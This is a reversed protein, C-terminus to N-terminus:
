APLFRGQGNRVWAPSSATVSRHHDYEWRHSSGGDSRGDLSREEMPAMRLQLVLADVERGLELKHVGKIEDKWLAISCSQDFKGMDNQRAILGFSTITLVSTGPDEALVTAYRGSWRADLQPGDMLLAILLNPGIARIVAQCPDVRALDECILATLTSTGRYVLVDLSRSLITLNEWWSRREDLETLGYSKIQGKELKWRHHKERVLVSPEWGTIAEIKEHRLLFFPVIAVFNGSRGTGDSSVGSVLFDIRGDSALAEALSRLLQYDLALEPLVIGDVSKGDERARAILALVFEVFEKRRKKDDAAPLWVQDVEFWGWHGDHHTGTGRFATDIIRYPFPVLLLRLPQQDRGTDANELLPEVWRARVLGRPPLLSLHHSFSRLTCGVSPTRSKPQVCVVDDAALSLSFPARQIRRFEGGSAVDEQVYAGKVAGSFPNPSFGIGRSAEDAIIMLEVCIIWWEPAPARDDLQTFVSHKRFEGLNRWLAHVEEPPAPIRLTGVPRQGRWREGIQVARSRFTESLFIRRLDSDVAESIQPAIHHYAGSRELLHATYAFVDAPLFPAERFATRIPIDPFLSRFVELLTAM